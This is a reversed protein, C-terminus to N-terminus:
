HSRHRVKDLFLYASNTVVGLLYESEAFCIAAELSGCRFDSLESLHEGTLFCVPYRSQKAMLAIIIDCNFCSFVIRQKDRAYTFIVSLIEDLYRNIEYFPQSVAYSYALYM